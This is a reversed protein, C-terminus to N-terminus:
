FVVPAMALRAEEQTVVVREAKAARREARASRADTELRVPSVSEGDDGLVEAHPGDVVDEGDVAGRGWRRM